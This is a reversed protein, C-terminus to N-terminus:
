GHRQQARATSEDLADTLFRYAEDVTDACYFLDLDTDAILGLEVFVDFNILRQWFDRGYLVVPIRPQKGTQILTLMEFLEDMTGFGGPFIILGKAINMFWFKRMFFYKFEFNLQDSVYPNAGQEHPLEINYGMSLDRDVDAAGRNAAEMIGPGGGTCIYYHDCPAHTDKTWRAMRAALSRAESYFDVSEAVPDKDHPRLRASGWFILARNVELKALRTRPELYESLVRIPRAEDSLMFEADNYAKTM